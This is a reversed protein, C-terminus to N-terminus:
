TPEEKGSPATPAFLSRGIVVYSTGAALVDGLNGEGVGGDVGVPRAASARSVKALLALDSQALTGPELLMVLLGDVHPLAEACAELTTGPSIALWPSAGAARIRAAVAPPDPVDEFPFTVRAIGPRCVRDLTEDLAEVALPHVDLPGVGADALQVILDLSVGAATDPFVDAHLWIKRESLLQAVTARQAPPVAYLSGSLEAGESGQLRRVLEPNLSPESELFPGPPEATM